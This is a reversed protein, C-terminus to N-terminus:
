MDHVSHYTIVVSTERPYKNGVHYEQKGNILVSVVQGNFANNEPVLDKLPVATINTFGAGAFLYGVSGYLKGICSVMESTIEVGNLCNYQVTNDNGSYEMGSAKPQKNNKILMPIVFIAIGVAVTILLCIVGIFYPPTICMTLSILAFLMLISAGFIKLGLMADAENKQREM